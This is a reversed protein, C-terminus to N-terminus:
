TSPELDNTYPQQNALELVPRGNVLNIWNGSATYSRRVPRFLPPPKVSRVPVDPQSLTRIILLVEPCIYMKDKIKILRECEEDGVSRSELLGWKGHRELRIDAYDEPLLPRGKAIGRFPWVAEVNLLRINEMFTFFQVLETTTPRKPSNPPITWSEPLNIRHYRKFAGYAAMARGLPFNLESPLIAGCIILRDVDEVTLEYPPQEFIGIHNLLRIYLYLCAKPYPNFVVVSAVRIPKSTDQEWIHSLQTHSLERTLDDHTDKRKLLADPSIVSKCTDSRTTSLMDDELIKKIERDLVPPSCEIKCIQMRDDFTLISRIDQPQTQLWNHIVQRTNIQINRYDDEPRLETDVELLPLM